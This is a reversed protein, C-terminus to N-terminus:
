LAKVWDRISEHSDDVKEGEDLLEFMSIDRIRDLTKRDVTWFADMRERIWPRFRELIQEKCAESVRKGHVMFYVDYGSRTVMNPYQDPRHLRNEETVIMNRRVQCVAGLDVSEPKATVSDDRRIWSYVPVHSRIEGVRSDKVRAVIVANFCSDENMRLEEPFRIGEDLLFSRRYVKGHCFVFTKYPPIMFINGHVADEEYCHSWLIDYKEEAPKLVNQIDELAYINAFCDDCDCFMLWEGDLKEIGANRAASIGGHPIDLQDFGAAKWRFRLDKLEEEPLRHGGDNIVTVRIQSWEVRRQMDLMLFQKRCVEWPEQYHTIVIDLM